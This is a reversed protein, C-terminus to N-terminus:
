EEPASRNQRMFETMKELGAHIDDTVRKLGEETPNKLLEELAPLDREANAVLMSIIEKRFPDIPGKLREKMTELARQGSVRTHQRKAADYQAKTLEGTAGESERM